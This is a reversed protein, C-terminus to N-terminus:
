KIGKLYKIQSGNLMKWKGPKLDGLKLDGIAIRQLRTIELGASECMKRIQRNRGEYLDMRLVTCGSKRAIVTIKVPAIKYGDIVMPQGLEYLQEPTIESNLRVHYIKPISHRPHTLKNALEGDNTLILLGESDMDLRGCPYIRTKIDTILDAVCKRGREDSMTTVYGAPKNLMIYIKRESGPPTINLSKYTVIDRGPIIKQGTEARIGNIYISGARIEDEAARRSMIGCDSIYKQIRIEKNEM